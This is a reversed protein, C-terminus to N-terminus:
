LLSKSFVGLGSSYASSGKFLSIIRKSSLLLEELSSLALSSVEKTLISSNRISSTSISGSSSGGAMIGIIGDL